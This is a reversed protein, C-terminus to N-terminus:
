GAFRPLALGCVGPDFSFLGGADPQAQLDQDSLGERASTIFLTSLGAGGFACCSPQQVPVAIIRDVSGDPAYRVVRWAGWQANWLYGEADMASGDPAGAEGVSEAFIRSAGPLGEPTLDHALITRKLSDAQYLVRGDPSVALSNPIHVDTFVLENHGDRDSRFISGPRRGGDDDMSSWWFRGKIDIQGDNSRFGEGLDQPSIMHFDASIPDFAGLGQETALLLRGDTRVCGASARFALDHAGHSASGPDYWSLKRGKIDFWWLRERISDWFPGEGLIDRSDVTRQPPTM